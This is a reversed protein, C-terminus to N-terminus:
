TASVLQEFDPKEDLIATLSKADVKGSRVAAEIRALKEVPDVHAQAVLKRQEDSLGGRAIKGVVLRGDHYSLRKMTLRNEVISFKM